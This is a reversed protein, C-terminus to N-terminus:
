SISNLFARNQAQIKYSNAYNGIDAPKSLPECEGTESLLSEIATLSFEVKILRLNVESHHRVLPKSMNIHFGSLLTHSFM